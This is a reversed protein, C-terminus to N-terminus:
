GRGRRRRRVTAGGTHALRLFRELREAPLRGAEIAATVACGPQQVHSCDRFRCEAALAVVDPFADAGEDLETLQIERIGPTDIVHAGGPLSFMQRHTTTHRGRSDFSRVAMTRQADRELLRNILTSKGVGSSGVLVVTRGPVLEALLAPPLEGGLLAASTVPVEPALAATSVRADLEGEAVLDAKTLLVFPTAGGARVLTLYRDLRRANLDGDLGMVVFVTDINAALVQEDPRDGAVKRAIRSRRPLLAHVIVPDNREDSRTVVWDGVIPLDAQTRAQHRLRGSVRAARQGTGDDITLAGRGDAFVRAPVLAPDGLAGLAQAFSADWGLRRLDDDTVDGSMTPGRVM